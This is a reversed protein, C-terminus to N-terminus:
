LDSYSNISFHLDEAFKDIIVYQSGDPYKKVSYELKEM